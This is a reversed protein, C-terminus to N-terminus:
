PYIIYLVPYVTGKDAYGIIINCQERLHLLKSLFIKTKHLIQSFYAYNPRFKAPNQRLPQLSPTIFCGYGTCALAM